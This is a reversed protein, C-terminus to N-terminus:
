AVLVAIPPLWSHTERPLIPISPVLRFKMLAKEKRMKLREPRRAKHREKEKMKSMSISEHAPTPPLMDPVTVSELPPATGLASTVAVFVSVPM